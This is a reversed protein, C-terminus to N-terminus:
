DHKQAAARAVDADSDSLANNEAPEPHAERRTTPPRRQDVTDFVRDWVLNSVAFRSTSTQFHHLMHSRRLRRGYATRPTFHHLSYHTLDYFMYGVVFGAHFSWGFRGLTFVFLALLALYTPISAGPPMVLRYKDKPWRHHVGHLIFHLRKGFASPLELHFVLRHLWYEAFTWFGFGVLGTVLSAILGVSTSRVGHVLPILAGPVYLIPVALPHTRSFLDVVDSKFMRPSQPTERQWFM